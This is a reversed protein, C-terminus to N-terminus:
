STIKMGECTLQAAVTDVKGGSEGNGVVTRFKETSVKM